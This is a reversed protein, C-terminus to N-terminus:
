CIPNNTLGKYGSKDTRLANSCRLRLWSSQVTHPEILTSSELENMQCIRYWDIKWIFSSALTWMQM